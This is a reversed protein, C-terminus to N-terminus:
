VNAARRPQCRSDWPYGPIAEHLQQRTETPAGPTIELALVPSLGSPAM